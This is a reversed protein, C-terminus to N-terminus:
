VAASSAIYRAVVSLFQKEGARTFRNLQVGVLERGNADEFLLWHNTRKGFMDFKEFRTVSTIQHWTVCVRKRSDREVGCLKQSDASAILIHRESSRCVWSSLAVLLLAFGLMIGERLSISGRWNHAIVFCYFVLFIVCIISCFHNYSHNESNDRKLEAVSDTTNIEEFIFPTKTERKLSLGKRRCVWTAFFGSSVIGVVFLVAALIAAWDSGIGVLLVSATASCVLM